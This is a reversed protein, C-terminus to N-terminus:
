LSDEMIMVTRIPSVRFFKREPSDPVGFAIASSRRIKGKFALQMIADPNAPMSVISYELLKAKRIVTDVAAGYRRQEEPTPATAELVKFGISFGRISEDEIATILDDGIGRRTIFTQCIYGNGSRFMRRCTGVPLDNYNHNLYVAKVQGPFYSTDLGDPLVVEDDLDPSDTTVIGKVIRQARDISVDTLISKVSLVEDGDGIAATSAHHQKIQEAFCIM